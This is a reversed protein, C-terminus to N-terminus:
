SILRHFGDVVQNQYTYHGTNLSIMVNHFFKLLKLTQYNIRQLVQMNEEILNQPMSLNLNNNTTM